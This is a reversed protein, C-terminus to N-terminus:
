EPKQGLFIKGGRSFCTSLEALQEGRGNGQFLFSFVMIRPLFPIQLRPAAGPFCCLAKSFTEM